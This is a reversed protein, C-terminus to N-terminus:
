THALLFSLNTLCILTLIGGSWREDDYLKVKIINNNNNHDYIFFKLCSGSLMHGIKNNKLLCVFVCFVCWNEVFM